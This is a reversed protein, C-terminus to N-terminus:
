TVLMSARTHASEGKARHALSALPVLLLTAALTGVLPPGLERLSSELAMGAAWSGAATGLNFISTCMASSLTPADRAFRVALAILVPNVVVGCLGLLAVLVVTPLPYRSFLCLLLLVVVTLAAASLATAYPRADGLRGGLVTAAVAGAGFGVLAVPVLAVPLGARDTLLPSIFSYTGLVGFNTLGCCLLVLWVRGFRLGALEAGVSTEGDAAAGKPLFRLVLLTTLAALLALAWFPGRWSAVQGAFAGLPVGVVTSLVGGGVVVGIARASNAPGAARSAIVAAVAWFAGTVLATVFRMTLLVTMSSCVAVIVHGVAFVTLALTLTLRGPLPLTLVAMVPAGVVMGVAFVTILLGARAVSVDLSEAIEPLLGAVVFETTGMLFTGLALVLVLPPLRGSSSGPPRHETPTGQTMVPNLLSPRGIKLACKELSYPM